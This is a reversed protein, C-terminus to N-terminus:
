LSLTFNERDKWIASRRIFIPTTAHGLCLKKVQDSLFASQQFLGELDCDPNDCGLRQKQDTIKGRLDEILALNKQRYKLTGSIQLPLAVLFTLCILFAISFRM